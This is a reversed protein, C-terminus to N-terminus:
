LQPRAEAYPASEKAGAFTLALLRIVAYVALPGVHSTLRTWSTSIHWLWDHPTIFYAAVYLALQAAVVMALFRVSRLAAPAAVVVGLLLLAWLVPQDLQAFLAEFIAGGHRARQLGREVTSGTAVDTFLGLVRRVVFWPFAIAPAVLLPLLVKWDRRRNLLSEVGAAVLVVAVLAIGENKTCAALGLLVGAHWLSRRDGRFGREAFLVGATALAALPAEAIGIYPTLAFSCSALMAAAGVTPGFEETAFARVVLVLAAACAITLLALWRDNWVGGTEAVYAFQMPLLLPYDAHAFGNWVRTLWEADVGGHEVFVRAKLGWIAWFDWQWVPAALAYRCYVAIVVLTAGDIVWRWAPVEANTAPAPRPARLAIVLLPLTMVAATVDISWLTWRIGALSLLSMSAWIVGLGYLFSLALLMTGRCRRDIALCVPVGFALTSLIAATTALM